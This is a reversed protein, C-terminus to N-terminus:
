FNYKKGQTKTKVTFIRLNFCVSNILIAWMILSSTPRCSGKGAKRRNWEDGVGTLAWSWEQFWVQLVRTIFYRLPPNSYISSIENCSDVNGVWFKTTCIVLYETARSNLHLGFLPCRSLGVLWM